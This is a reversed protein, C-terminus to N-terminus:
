YATGHRDPFVLTDSGRKAGPDLGNAASQFGSPAIARRKQGLRAEVNFGEITGGNAARQGLRRAQPSNGHRRRAVRSESDLDRAVDLLRCKMSEAVAERGTGSELFGEFPHLAIAM